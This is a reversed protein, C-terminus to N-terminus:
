IVRIGPIAVVFKCGWDNVSQLQQIIESSINWPLIILFDPQDINIEDPHLIPIHSGPLYNGQKASAADYVCTILDSKVGAYNLLTNGKAAAGYAAIRKGNKRQKILFDLFDNKINNVHKQFSNYIELDHLGFQEEELIIKNVVPSVERQHDLHCGYVRLSGGHTELIDVNWIKLGVNKFIKNVTFLSLYSFHEHYVTDFQKHKLLEMLHPFELTITGSEKLLIKMGESFDNIDPVHALINNGIILDAHKGEKELKFALEKGFFERRVPIGQEEAKDATSATPEIGLCPIKKALFNKLLYGDNSAVEVVFSNKTLGIERTISEAYKKAHILWNKSVSSFYAYKDTFLDEACTYDDTQVLWCNYCVFLRLPFTLEPKNLEEKSLYANSPPMFDLDLFKYELGQNCHRCNM